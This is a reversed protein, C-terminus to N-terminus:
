FLQNLSFTKTIFFIGYLYCKKNADGNGHISSSEHQVHGVFSRHSSKQLGQIVSVIIIINMMIINGVAADASLRFIPVHVDLTRSEFLFYFCVKM